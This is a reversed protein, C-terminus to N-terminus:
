LASKQLSCASRTGTRLRLLLQLREGRLEAQQRLAVLERQVEAAEVAGKVLHQLLGRAVRAALHAFGLAEAAETVIGRRNDLLTMM